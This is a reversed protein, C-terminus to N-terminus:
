VELEDLVDGAQATESYNIVPKLLKSHRLVRWIKNSLIRASRGKPSWLVSMREGVHVVKMASSNWVRIRIINTQTLVIKPSHDPLVTKAVARPIRGQAM